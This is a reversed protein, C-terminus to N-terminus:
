DIEEAVLKARIAGSKPEKPLMAKWQKWCKGVFTKTKNIIDESKAGESVLRMADKIASELTSENVKDALVACLAWANANPAKEHAKGRSIIGHIRVKFDVVVESESALVEEPALTTASESVVKKIALKTLNDM